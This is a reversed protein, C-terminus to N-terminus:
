GRGVEGAVPLLTSFHRPPQWLVGHRGAELAEEWLRRLPRLSQRRSLFRAIARAGSAVEGCVVVPRHSYYDGWRHREAGLRRGDAEALEILEVGLRRFGNRVMPTATFVVWQCGAGSLYATLAVILLRAGGPCAAALNGVEMIRSRGVPRRAVTAIRSEVPEDLYCELFLRGERAPRVGLAAQRAGDLEVSLLYPLFHRVDAGHARAFTAHIFREVEVRGPDGREVLALELAVRDSLAVGARSNSFVM